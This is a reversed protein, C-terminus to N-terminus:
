CAACIPRRRRGTRQQARQRRRHRRRGPHRRPERSRLAAPRNWARRQLDPAADFAVADAARHEPEVPADGANRSGSKAANRFSTRNAARSHVRVRADSRRPQLHEADHQVHARDREAPEHPYQRREALFVVPVPTRPLPRIWRQDVFGAPEGAIAGLAGSSWNPTWAFGVRPEINNADDDYPLRRPRERGAGRRCVRLAPRPEADTLQRGALQGRRLLQVRQDPERPLVARLRDSVDNVCGDWFAAFSSPYTVGGCAAAFSWFGRTNSQALDDLHSFRVDTGAKINHGGGLLTSLNYVLQYDNQDRLIPFNGANGIISASVPSGAFRIIPTDNGAKINVNTDRVGVGFRLEGVTRSSLTRTWSIGVNQQDNLQQTTEGVIIDQNDFNQKSYQYRGTFRDIGSANWDLRISGDVTKQDFGVLSRSVDPQEAFREATLSGFRALVSDQFARNAPTDNGRTLRPGSTDAGIILDRTYSSTGDRRGYEASGFAFLVDKKLPLGVVGGYNPRQNIPRVTAFAPLANWDSDQRTYAAEGHIQNTGSKTQVLVVAGYGRGFEASFSNSIVQFEKIAALAIGQRHQNESSDDNNVGDIQFTAGRTGTGNFNISSGSSATPNNQGSTPNEQFGAFTEALSLFTNNNNLNQFTPKDLIQESNLSQQVQQNTTNIRPPEATVTTEQTIAPDLRFDVVTTSNLTVSAERVVAGFGSLSASVKYRGLPLFPASYQGRENTTAQRTAGTEINQISVSVGPLPSGTTDTM